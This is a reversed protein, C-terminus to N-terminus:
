GNEELEKEKCETLANALFRSLRVDKYTRYFENTDKILEDWYCESSEVKWYQQCLKWFDTFMMWEESGKGFKVEAM